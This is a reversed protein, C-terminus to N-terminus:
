MERTFQRFTRTRAGPPVYEELRELVHILNMPMLRYIYPSVLFSDERATERLGLSTAIRAITEDNHIFIKGGWRRLGLAILSRPTWRYTDFIVRGGPRVIRRMESIIPEPNRYHFLLRLTVAADVSGNAIPLKVGDAEVAPLPAHERVIQLM